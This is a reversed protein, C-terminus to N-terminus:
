KSGRANRGPPCHLRHIVWGPAEFAESCTQGAGPRRRGCQRTAPTVLIRVLRAADASPHWEGLAGSISTSASTRDGRGEGSRTVAAATLMLKAERRAEYRLWAVRHGSACSLPFPNQALLDGGGGGM